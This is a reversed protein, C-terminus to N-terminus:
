YILQAQSCIRRQRERILPPENCLTHKIASGHPTAQSLHVGLGQYLISVSVWNWTEVARGEELEGQGGGVTKAACWCSPVTLLALPLTSQLCEQGSWQSSPMGKLKVEYGSKPYSKKYTLPLFDPWMTRAVLLKNAWFYSSQLTMRTEFATQDGAEFLTM